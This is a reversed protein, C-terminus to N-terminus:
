PRTAYDAETLTKAWIVYAKERVAQAEIPLESALAERALKEERSPFISSSRGLGCIERTEDLYFHRSPRITQLIPVQIPEMGAFSLGDRHCLTVPLGQGKGSKEAAADLRIKVAAAQGGIGPTQQQALHVAAESQGVAGGFVGFRWIVM